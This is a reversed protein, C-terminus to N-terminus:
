PRSSQALLGAELHRMAKAGGYIKWGTGGSFGHDTIVGKSALDRLSRRASRIQSETPSGGSAHGALCAASILRDGDGCLEIAIRQLRGPGKSM